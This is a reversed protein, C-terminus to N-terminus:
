RNLKMGMKEEVSALKKELRDEKGKYDDIKIDTLVRGANKLAEDHCKKIVSLIENLEGELVTGMANAKYRIGSDVVIKLVKAIVPSISVGTGVPVVSFEVLVPM